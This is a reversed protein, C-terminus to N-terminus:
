TCRCEVRRSSMRDARNAEVREEEVQVDVEVEVEVKGRLDSLYFLDVVYSISRDIIVVAVASRVGSGDEM